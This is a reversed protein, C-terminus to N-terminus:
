PWVALLLGITANQEDNMCVAAAAPLEEAYGVSFARKVKM